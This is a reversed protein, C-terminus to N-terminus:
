FTWGLKMLMFDAVHRHAKIHIGTFINDTIHFNIGYTQYLPENSKVVDYIYLGIKQSFTFKGMLFEHGILFGSRFFDKDEDLQEIEWQLSHDWVCEIDATVASMRSIQQSIGMATGFVTFYRSSALIKKPYYSISVDYRKKKVGKFDTKKRREFSIPHPTYDLGLGVTPYNIGKNPQKLGGNSIHNYNSSLTVKIKSNINYHFAVGLQSYENLPLSYSLNDPNTIEDYPKTDFSLGLLLRVSINIKKDIRFFPEAFGAVNFGYGLIEKNDFDFFSLSGGVRPYCSCIEWSKEDIKQWNFNLETGIPYSNKLAEIAASHILIFGYHQQISLSFISQQDSGALYMSGSDRATGILPLSLLTLFLIRM